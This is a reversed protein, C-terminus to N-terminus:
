PAAFDLRVDGTAGEVPVGQVRMDSVVDSVCAGLAGQTADDLSTAVKVSSRRLELHVRVTARAGAPGHFCRSLRGTPLAATIAGEAVGVSTVSGVRMSAASSQPPREDTVPPAPPVRPSDLIVPEASRDDVPPPPPHQRVANERPEHAVTAPAAHGASPALGPPTTASPSSTAPSASTSPATSPLSVTAPQASPPEPPLVRPPAALTPAPSPSPRPTITTVPSHKRLWYAGGGGGALALAIVAILLGGGGGNTPIESVESLRPRAGSSSIALARRSSPPPPVHLSPSSIPATPVTRVVVASQRIVPQVAERPLPILEARRERASAYRDAPAKALARLCVEEIKPDVGAVRDSPRPVPLDLHQLVTALPSDGRFPPAGTLMEFLMAGMSYVDSRADLAGGRAQEPSLYEPTGVISGELTLKEDLPSREVKAIGFDCVKVLESAGGDDDKSTLIMVNDPKLDRHVIGLEHAAALAALIQRTLDIVRAPALPAEEKIIQLLSRGELYEMAIFLTGDPEQGFDLVRMSSPHDIRSAATAERKFRGAFTPEANLEPHLVKIAVVKDLGAQRARYVAGMGGSGVRSEITYKGAITRGLLPDISARREETAAM